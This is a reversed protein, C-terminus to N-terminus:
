MSLGGSVALTEGTIFSADSSALFAIAAAVEEPTGCRGMVTADIMGQRMRSGLSGFDAVSSSLLPTDIPGPAVANCRVGHPASERAISKTFALVGGKAAAYTAGAVTGVHGAESSINVISGRRREHMGALVAHTSAIVGFLNVAIDSSWTVEDSDVFFGFRSGGASNVLVDIPGLEAEARAVAARVSDLKTVDLALGLGGVDAAVKAAGDADRDAVAVLAGEAALRHVAAAGIGSAGGTVFATLGDLRNTITTFTM